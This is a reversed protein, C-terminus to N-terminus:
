TYLVFISIIFWSSFSSCSSSFFKKKGGKLNYDFFSPTPSSLLSSFLPTEKKEYCEYKKM